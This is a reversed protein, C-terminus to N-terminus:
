ETKQTKLLLGKKFGLESISLIEYEKNNYQIRMETDLDSRFRIKIDLRSTMVYEENQISENGGKDEVKAWANVKTSWSLIEAGSNSRSVTKELIAIRRNLEGANM